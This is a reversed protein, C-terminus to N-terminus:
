KKGIHLPLSRFISAELYVEKMCKHALMERFDQLCTYIRFPFATFFQLFNFFFLIVNVQFSSNIQALSPNPTPGGNGHSQSGTSVHVISGSLHANYSPSTTTFPLIRPKPKHPHATQCHSFQPQRHPSCPNFRQHQYFPPPPPFPPINANVSSATSPPPLCFPPLGTSYQQTSMFLSPSLATASTRSSQSSRLVKPVFEPAMPNLGYLKKMELADLHARLQMWSIGYLSNHDRCTEIFRLWLKRYVHFVFYSM